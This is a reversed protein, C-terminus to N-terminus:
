TMEVPKKAKGTIRGCGPEKAQKQAAMTQRNGFAAYALDHEPKGFL